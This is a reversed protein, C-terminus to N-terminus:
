YQVITNFSDAPLKVLIIQHNLTIEVPISASTLNATVLVISGDPNQFALSNRDSSEIRKAGPTVFASFHKMLYFEPNYVVEHTNTNATIMANQKWGWSSTSKQDLVMNWYMYSDAWNSLYHKLLGWTHVASSWDNEGGGCETETQMLKLKPFREHTEAIAKKGDWQYGVGTIYSAANSDTLVPIAYANIDGNNITGLWIQAKIHHEKFLPGLYNGVFDRIQIGTWLCSPFIQASAPENQVHVAFVPIGTRQYEVVYNALYRAYAVLVKPEFRLENTGGAYADNEKMWAPPSWASGWIKLRPNVALASKIYPILCSKDREISFHELEYDGPTEDLSYWSKAFDSAGIPMRGFEFGCGDRSDFLSKIVTQRKESPLTLLAEWGLENFCGGFGDITQYKRAPNISITQNTRSLNTVTIVASQVKWPSEETTSIFTVNEAIGRHTTLIAFTLYAFFRRPINLKTIRSTPQKTTKM